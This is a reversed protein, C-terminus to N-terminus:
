ARARRRGVDRHLHGAVRERQAPDPPMSKATPANVLREAPGGRSGGPCPRSSRPSPAATRRGCAAARHDHTSSSHPRRIAAARRPLADRDAGARASAVHRAVSMASCASPVVRNRTRRAPRRAADGPAGDGAAVVHGIGQQRQRDQVLARHWASTAAAPSRSPPRARGSPACRRRAATGRRRRSCGCAPRRRRRAARRQARQGAAPQDDHEAAAAVAVAALPRQHALDGRAAGVQQDDGVVVRARLIRGVIRAAISAPACATGAASRPSTRSTPSRASAIAAATARRPSRAVGHQDGALAVLGALLDGADRVGEVVAVHQAAASSRM